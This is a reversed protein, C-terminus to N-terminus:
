EGTNKSATLNCLESKMEFYIKLHQLHNVVLQLFGVDGEDLKGVVVDSLLFETERRFLHGLEDEEVVLNRYLLDSM